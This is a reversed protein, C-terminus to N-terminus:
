GGKNSENIYLVATARGPLLHCSELSTGGPVAALDESLREGGTGAARDRSGSRAGRVRAAPNKEIVCGGRTRPVDLAQKLGPGRSSKAYFKMKERFLEATDAATENWEM